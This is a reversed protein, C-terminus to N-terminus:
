SKTLERKWKMGLVEMLIQYYLFQLHMWISAGASVVLVMTGNVMVESGTEMVHLLNVKFDM